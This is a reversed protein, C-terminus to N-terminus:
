PLVSVPQYIEVLNTDKKYVPTMDAFKLRRPLCQKELKEYNKIDQHVSNCIELLDKLLKAPINEFTRTKKSKLNSVEKQIDPEGIEKFRFRSEFSVNENIMKINPHITRTKKLLLTLVVKSRYSADVDSSVDYEKIGLKGVASEFYKNFM